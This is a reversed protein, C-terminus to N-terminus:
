VSFTYINHHHYSLYSTYMYSNVCAGHDMINEKQTDYIEFNYQETRNKYFQSWNLKDFLVYM